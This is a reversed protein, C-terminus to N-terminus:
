RRSRKGGVVQLLLLLIVAGVFAVIVDGLFGGPSAINLQSFLWGGLVAGVLGVIMNVLLGSDRGRVVKGALWGAIAGMLLWILINM